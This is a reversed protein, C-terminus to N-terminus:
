LVVGCIKVKERKATGITDRPSCAVSKDNTPSPDGRRCRATTTKSHNNKMTLNGKFTLALTLLLIFFCAENIYAFSVFGIFSFIFERVFVKGSKQV